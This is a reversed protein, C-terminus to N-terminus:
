RQSTGVTSSVGRPRVLKVPYKIAEEAYKKVSEKSMVLKQPQRISNRLCYKHPKDVKKLGSDSVSESKWLTNCDESLCRNRIQNEHRTVVANLVPSYIKYIVGRKSEVEGDLWNIKGDKRYNLFYVLKGIKRNKVGHHKDFWTKMKVQQPTIVKNEQLTVRKPILRALNLRLKRGLFVESPSKGELSEHPSARYFLLVESLWNKKNSNKTMMRKFYDVFREVQGNSQPHYPASFVQSIGKNQCYVKFENSRFPSGNDSVITEPYGYHTGLWEFCKIVDKASTTMNEFVEPWKSHADIVIFYVKGDKCPGAFDIHVREWNRNTNPWPRLESKIPRKAAAQCMICNAVWDDIDRGINPWYMYERAVGKMKASGPHTEHLVKLVSKRLAKPIVIKGSCMICEDIVELDQRRNSWISLAPDSLVKPWGNKIFQKIMKLESDNETESKVQEANVPVEDLMINLVYKVSEEVLLSDEDSSDEDSCNESKAVLAIVKDELESKESILRSLTDAMGMQNTSVFEIKFDYNTLLLAWRQLRSASFVKIGKNKGFIALLPKHDTRLIFKRGFLMKHFKQVAFVLALGEKEIQSYNKEADNLSKSAYEIVKEKGNPFKHSIVAGVGYNSADATVIIELEPDFHTLMLDSNLVKKVSQFAKEQDQGWEWKVEKKLLKDLPGRYKHMESVFRGYYNITGMFSKLEKVDRPRTLESIKKKKEPDPEIGSKSVIHGLFKLKEKFFNCKELQIKLGWKEIRDFIEFLQVKHDEINKSVIILDDLYAFVGPIGSILKDMLRQFIGPASKVGFPLRQVEFLGKHTNICAVKKSQEDLEIQLYADRLDLQSFVKIPEESKKISSVIPYGLKNEVEIIWPLGFLNLKESTVHTVLVQKSEDVEVSAMFSGLMSFENGTFSRGKCPVGTLKPSGINKWTVESICSIQAGSDLIFEVETGNVLVKKTLWKPKVSLSVHLIDVSNKVNCEHNEWWTKVKSILAM